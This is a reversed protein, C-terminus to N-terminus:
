DPETYSDRKGIQKEMRLEGIQCYHFQSLPPPPCFLLSFSFLSFQSGSKTKIWM